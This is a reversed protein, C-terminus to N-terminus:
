YLTNRPAIKSYFIVQFYQILSAKFNYSKKKCPGRFPQGLFSQISGVNVITYARKKTKSRANEINEEIMRNVVLNTLRVAGFFNIDM